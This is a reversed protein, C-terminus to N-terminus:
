PVLVVDGSQLVINQELMKGREVQGYKFHIAKQTEGNRRLVVIDNLKAFKSTGGAMSLAQLVDIKQSMLFDGPRNVQGIVYFRNGVVQRLSVNVNVDPIYESLKETLERQVYQPSKNRVLLHNVLPFSIYGEPSVLVERQLDQEKWVSIHLIDGPQISYGADLPLNSIGTDIVVIDPNNLVDSEVGVVDTNVSLEESWSQISICLLALSFILRTFLKVQPLSM